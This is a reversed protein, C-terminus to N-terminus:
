SNRIIFPDVCVCLCFYSVNKEARSVPQHGSGEEKHNHEHYICAAAWNHSDKRMDWGPGM